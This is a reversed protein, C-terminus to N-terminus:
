LIQLTKSNRRSSDESSRVRDIIVAEVLDGCLSPHIGFADTYFEAQRRSEKEEASSQNRFLAYKIKEIRIARQAITHAFTNSQNKCSISSCSVFQPGFRGAHVVYVEESKLLTIFQGADHTQSRSEDKWGM